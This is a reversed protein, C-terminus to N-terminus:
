NVKFVQEPALSPQMTANFLVCKNNIASAVHCRRQFRRRTLRVNFLSKIFLANSRHKKFKLAAENLVSASNPSPCSIAFLEAAATPPVKARRCSALHLLAFESAAATLLILTGVFYIESMEEFFFM